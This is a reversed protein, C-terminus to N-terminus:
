QDMRPFMALKRNAFMKLLHLRMYLSSDGYVHNMKINIDEPNQELLLTTAYYISFMGCSTDDRQTDKPKAYIIHGKRQPYLRRVIVNQVPTLFKRNLSDYVYLQQTSAKYYTCIWHGVAGIRVIGGYLIQVDDIETSNYPNYNDIIQYNFEYYMRQANFHENVIDVFYNISVDMLCKDETAVEKLVDDQISTKKKKVFYISSYHISM